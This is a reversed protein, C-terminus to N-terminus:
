ESRSWARQKAAAMSAYHDDDGNHFIRSSFKRTLRGEYKDIRIIQSTLGVQELAYKM